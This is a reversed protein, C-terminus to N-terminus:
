RRRSSLNSCTALDVPGVYPNGWGM